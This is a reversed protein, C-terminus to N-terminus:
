RLNMKFSSICVKSRACYVQVADYMVYM